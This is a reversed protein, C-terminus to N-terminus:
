EGQAECFEVAGAHIEDKIREVIERATNFAEERREASVVVHMVLSGPELDDLNHLIAVRCAGPRKQAEEAVSRLRKEADQPLGFRLLRIRNGDRQRKVIGTFSVVCGLRDIDGALTKRIAEPLLSLDLPQISVFNMERSGSM